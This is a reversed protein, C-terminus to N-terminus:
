LISMSLAHELENTGIYGIMKMMKMHNVGETDPRLIPFGSDHAGSAVLELLKESLSQM